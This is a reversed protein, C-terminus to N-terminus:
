PLSSSSSSSITKTLTQLHASHPAAPPSKQTRARSLSLSLSHAVCVCVLLLVFSLFFSLAIGVWTKYMLLYYVRCAFRHSIRPDPYDRQQAHSGGHWRRLSARGVKPSRKRHLSQHPLARAFSSLPHISLDISRDISVYM